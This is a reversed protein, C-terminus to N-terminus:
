AVTLMKRPIAYRDITIIFLLRLPALIFFSVAGFAERRRTHPPDTFSGKFKLQRALARNPPPTSMLNNQSQNLRRAVLPSTPPALARATRDRLVTPSAFTRSTPPPVHSQSRPRTTTASATARRQKTLFPPSLLATHPDKDINQKSGPPISCVKKLLSFDLTTSTPFLGKV